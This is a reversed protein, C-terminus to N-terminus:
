RGYFFVYIGVGSLSFDYFCNEIVWVLILVIRDINVEKIDFYSKFKEIDLFNDVLGKVFCVM